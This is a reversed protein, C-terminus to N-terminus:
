VEDSFKPWCTQIADAVTLFINDEGIVTTLKSAELKDMVVPGPNALLLQKLCYSFSIAKLRFKSYFSQVDSM